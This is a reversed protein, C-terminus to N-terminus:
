KKGKKQMKSITKEAKIKRDAVSQYPRWSWM